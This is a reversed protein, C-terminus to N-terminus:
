LYLLRSWETSVPIIPAWFIKPAFWSVNSTSAWIISQLRAGHLSEVALCRTPPRSM